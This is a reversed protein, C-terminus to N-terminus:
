KDTTKCETATKGALAAWEGTPIAAAPPMGNAPGPVFGTGPRLDPVWSVFEMDEPPNMEDREEM